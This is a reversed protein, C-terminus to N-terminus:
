VYWPIRMLVFWALYILLILCGWAIVVLRSKEKSYKALNKFLFWFSFYLGSLVLITVVIVLALTAILTNNQIIINFLGQSIFWGLFAVPLVSFKLYFRRREFYAELGFFLAQIIVGSLLAFFRIVPHIGGEPSWFNALIILGMATLFILTMGLVLIDKGDLKPKATEENVNKGHNETM